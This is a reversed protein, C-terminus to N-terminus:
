DNRPTGGAATRTEDYGPRALQVAAYPGEIIHGGDPPRQPHRPALPSESSQCGTAHLAHRAYEHAASRIRHETASAHGGEPGHEAKQECVHKDLLNRATAPADSPTCCWFRRCFRHGPPCHGAASHQEACADRVHNDRCICRIRRAPVPESAPNHGASRDQHQQAHVHRYASGDAASRQPALRTGRQAHQGAMLHERRHGGRGSRELGHGPIALCSTGVFEPKRGHSARVALCYYELDTLRHGAGPKGYM